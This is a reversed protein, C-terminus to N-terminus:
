WWFRNFLFCFLDNHSILSSFMKFHISGGDSIESESGSSVEMEEMNGKTGYNKAEENTLVFLSGPFENTDCFPAPLNLRNM